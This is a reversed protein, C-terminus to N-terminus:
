KKFKFYYYIVVVLMGLAAVYKVILPIQHILIAYALAIINAIFQIFFFLFSIDDVKKTKEMKVVQPIFCVTFLITSIWGLLLITNM